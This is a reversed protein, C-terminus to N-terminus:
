DDRKMTYRKLDSLIRADIGLGLPLQDLSQRADEHWIRYLLVVEQHGDILSAALHRRDYPDALTSLRRFVGRIQSQLDQNNRNLMTGISEAMETPLRSGGYILDCIQLAHKFGEVNSATFISQMLLNPMNRIAGKVDHPAGKPVGRALYYAYMGEPLWNRVLNTVLSVGARSRSESLKPVAVLFVMDRAYQKSLIGSTTAAKLVDNLLRIDSKFGLHTLWATAKTRLDSKVLDDGGDPIGKLAASATKFRQVWYRSHVPEGSLVEDHELRFADVLRETTRRRYVGTSLDSLISALALATPTSGLNGQDSLFAAPNTGAEVVDVKNSIVFPIPLPDGIRFRRDRYNGPLWSSQSYGQENYYEHFRVIVLDDDTEPTLPANGIGKFLPIGYGDGDPLLRIWGTLRATRVSRNL